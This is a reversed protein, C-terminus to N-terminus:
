LDLNLLLLVIHTFMESKMRPDAGVVHFIAWSNFDLTLLNSRWASCTAFCSVWIGLVVAKCLLAHYVLLHLSCLTCRDLIAQSEDMIDWSGRM